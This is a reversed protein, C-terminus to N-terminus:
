EIILTKNVEVFEDTLLQTVEALLEEEEEVAMEEKLVAIKYIPSSKVIPGIKFHAPADVVIDSELVSGDKEAREPVDTRLGVSAYEVHRGDDAIPGINLLSGSYTMVLGGRVEDVGFSDVEEMNRERLQALFSEEKELWGKALLDLADEGDAQKISGALQKLHNQVAESVKAFYEGM